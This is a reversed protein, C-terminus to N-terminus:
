DLVWVGQRMEGLVLFFRGVGCFLDQLDEGARNTLSINFLMWRRRRRSIMDGDEGAEAATRAWASVRGFGKRMGEIDGSVVFRFIVSATTM